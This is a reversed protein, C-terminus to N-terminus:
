DEVIDPICEIATTGSLLPIDIGAMTNSFSVGGSDTKIL